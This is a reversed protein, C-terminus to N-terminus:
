LRKCYTQYRKILQTAFITLEKITTGYCTTTANWREMKARPVGPVSHFM